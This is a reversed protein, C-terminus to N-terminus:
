RDVRARDHRLAAGGARPSAPSEFGAALGHLRSWPIRQSRQAGSLVVINTGDEKM